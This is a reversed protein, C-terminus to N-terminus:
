KKHGGVPFGYFYTHIRPYIKPIKAIRQFVITQRKKDRDNQQWATRSDFKGQIDGLMDKWSRFLNSRAEEMAVTFAERLEPIENILATLINM